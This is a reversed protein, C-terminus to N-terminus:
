QDIPKAKNFLTFFNNTTIQAIEEFEQNRLNAVLEATIKTFAPECRKGRNPIPALFPSDTEVLLRDNPVFKVIERLSNANKFTIIGSFSLYFGLDLAQHALAESGSFCHFVGRVNPFKKVCNITDTDAERTHIIVPLDLKSSLELHTEFSKIQEIRDSHNYYYDLGTEGLAVVKPHKCLETIRKQLDNTQFLKSEHPHIGVSCFVKSYKDAIAQLTLSEELSTNVTLFYHVGNLEANKIVQDLDNAFDSFNLHCHSDVLM